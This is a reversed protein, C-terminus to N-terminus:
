ITRHRLLFDLVLNTFLEVRTKPFSHLANSIIALEAKPILRLMEVAEEVPVLVDRDGSLILTPVSIKGFDAPTYGLPTLWLVSLQTLLSKWHNPNRPTHLERWLAILDPTHREISETNVMGPGEIGFSKMWRIYNESFRYCASSIVLAKALNPYRMGIELAIQSGDSWGCVYPRNLGMTQIFAAVDGAMARYTLTGAPNDTNGHGRSDLAIVHFHKTFAPVHPQWMKCTLGGGHLLILPEGLGHVEYYINLDNVQLYAGQGAPPKIAGSLLEGEEGEKKFLVEFLERREPSLSSLDKYVPDNVNM